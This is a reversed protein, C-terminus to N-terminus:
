PQPPMWGLATCARKCKEVEGAAAQAEDARRQVPQQNFWAVWHAPAAAVYGPEGNQYAGVCMDAAQQVTLNPSPEHYPDPPVAKDGQSHGSQFVQDGDEVVCHPGSANDVNSGENEFM